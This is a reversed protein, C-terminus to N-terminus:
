KLAPAIRQADAITTAAAAGELGSIINCASHYALADAIARNVPYKSLPDDRQSTINMLIGERQKTIGTSIVNLTLNNFYAENYLSLFANSVTSGAALAKATSAPTTVSAAGSLLTALGSWGMQTQSKSSTLVRLYTSCRQNSAAILRDQLDNRRYKYEDKKTSQDVSVAKPDSLGYTTLLEDINILEFGATTGSDGGAPKKVMISGAGSLLNEDDPSTYHRITSCASIFFLVSILAVVRIARM